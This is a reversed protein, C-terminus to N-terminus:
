RNICGNFTYCTCEQWTESGDKLCEHMADDDRQQQSIYTGNKIKERYSKQRKELHNAEKQYTYFCLWLVCSGIIYGAFNAKFHRMERAREQKKLCMM